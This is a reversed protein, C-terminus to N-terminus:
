KYKGETDRNRIEIEENYKLILDSLFNILEAAMVIGMEDKTVLVSDYYNKYDYDINKHM